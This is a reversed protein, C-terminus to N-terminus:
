ETKEEVESGEGAEESKEEAEDNQAGLSSDEGGAGASEAGEAVEPAVMESSEAKEAEKRNKRLKEGNRVKGAGDGRFKAVWKPMKVGNGELIKAVRPSPQAGNNIYKQVVAVDIQATKQHPDYSGVQAVIKGSSPTRQSDQVVVRYMALHAKGIRQLRVVLM